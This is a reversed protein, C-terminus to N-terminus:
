MEYRNGNFWTYVGEGEQDGDVWDGTYKNGNASYYTGKGHRKDTKFQGVPQENIATM